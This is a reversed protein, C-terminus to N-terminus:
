DLDQDLVTWPTRLGFFERFNKTFRVASEENRGQKQQGSDQIRLRNKEFM